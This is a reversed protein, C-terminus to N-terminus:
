RYRPGQPGARLRPPDISPCLPAREFQPLVRHNLERFEIDAATGRKKQRNFWYRKDQARQDDDAEVEVATPVVACLRCLPFAVAQLGWM